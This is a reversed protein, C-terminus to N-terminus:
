FPVRENIIMTKVKDWKDILVKKIFEEDYETIPASEPYEKKKRKGVVERIEYEEIGDKEMLAILEMLNEAPKFGEPIEAPEEAPPEETAPEEAVPEPKPEEKKKAKSKKKPKEEEFLHAISDFSFDLKEDLGFRNKADWVPHHSTYMVRKGGHAKAKGNEDKIVITEYNAFLLMDPWEKLLPATKKQLKLEWRDYAGSEDPQEFKRLAAHATIVINIGKECVETLARLMRGFEEALYTYGKGYGYDEIGTKGGKICVEQICLQEAWDATDIVLTKCTDPNDRVFHIEDRLENWTRPAPLRSVDMHKTSGETDIFLPDPFQSAFTSKGIGEPGYVVAKIPSNMKGRIIEM